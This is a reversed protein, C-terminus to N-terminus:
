INEDKEPNENLVKKKREKKKGARNPALTIFIIKM